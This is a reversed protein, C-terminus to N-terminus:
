SGATAAPKSDDKEFYMIFRSFRAYEAKQHTFRFAFYNSNADVPNTQKHLTSGKFTGCEDYDDPREPNAALEILWTGEAVMDIAQLQKPNGPSKADMYPVVFRCVTDEDYTNNDAGGYLYITDGARAYVRKRLVAFDSIEVGVEYTSWAAIKPGAFFSYVFIKDGVALWYRKDIPEVVSVAREIQEDTLTALYDIVTTDISTGVESVTGINNTDRAKLARIGNNALYFVDGDGFPAVSRGSLTGTNKIVQTQANESDDADLFWVQVAEEAFIAVKDYFVELATLIDSGTSFNSMNVSGAGIGTVDNYDTPDNVASFVLRPGSTSYLKTGFTLVSKGPEITTDSGNAMDTTGTVTVDGAVTVLLDFGNFSAGATPAKVIVTAGSSTATYEPTSNFTNIQAAVLSATNTNSTTWDVDTDMIEVGNVKVSTIKNVGASETGTAITFRARAFGDAFDDILTGDYFHQISDDDFSASVYLKGDFVTVDEVQTMNAGSPHQLRQYNVDAPMDASEAASGFVYLEGGVAALGFTDAPLTYTAEFSKRVELEGGRTIHGNVLTTLTGPAATLASKRSDQGLRFDELIFYAM